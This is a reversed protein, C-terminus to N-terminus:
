DNKLAARYAAIAQDTQKSELLTDAKATLTLTNAPTVKVNRQQQSRNKALLAQNAKAQAVRKKRNSALQADYRNGGSRRKSGSTRMTRGAAKEQPAKRSKRFVFVSAGGTIDDSAVIDQPFVLVSSFCISILLSSSLFSKTFRHNHVM